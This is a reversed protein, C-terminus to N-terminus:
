LDRHVVGHRHAHDLAEAVQAIVEAAERFGFRRGTLAKALTMGEVYASVMYPVPGGRGVEYVPVIGPHALQAANRAERVFRDQDAPTLWRGVRPVKVAV